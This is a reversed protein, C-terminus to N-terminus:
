GAHRNKIIMEEALEFEMAEYAEKIEEYAVSGELTRQHKKLWNYLPRTEPFVPEYIIGTKTQLM